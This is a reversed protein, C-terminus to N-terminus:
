AKVQGVKTTVKVPKGSLESIFEEPIKIQCKFFSGDKSYPPIKLCKFHHDNILVTYHLNPHLNKGRIELSGSQDFILTENAHIEPDLYYKLSNTSNYIVGDLHLKYTFDTPGTLNIIQSSPLSCNLSELLNLSDPEYFICPCLVRFNPFILELEPYFVSSLNTGFFEINMKGTYITDQPSLSIYPDPKYSFKKNLIIEKMRFFYKKFRFQFLKRYYDDNKENYLIFNETQNLNEWANRKQIKKEEENELIEFAESFNFVDNQNLIM